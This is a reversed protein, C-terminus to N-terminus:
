RHPPGKFTMERSWIRVNQVGVTHAAVYCTGMESHSHSQPVKSRCSQSSGKSILVSMFGEARLANWDPIRAVKHSQPLCQIDVKPRWIHVHVHVRTCVCPKVLLRSVIQFSCTPNPSPVLTPWTVSHQCNDLTASPKNGPAFLSHSSWPLGFVLGSLFHFIVTKDRWSPLRGRQHQSLYKVPGRPEEKRRNRSLGQTKRDSEGWLAKRSCSTAM